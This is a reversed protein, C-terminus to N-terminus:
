QMNCIFGGKGYWSKNHFRSNDAGYILGDRKAKNRAIAHAQAEVPVTLIVERKENYVRFVNTM